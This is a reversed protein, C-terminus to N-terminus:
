RATFDPRQNADEEDVQYIDFGIGAGLDTIGKLYQAEILPGTGAYLYTSKWVVDVYSEASSAIALIAARHPLLLNLLAKLHENIDKRADGAIQLIPSSDLRWWGECQHGLLRGNPARREDGKRGSSYPELGLENTVSVPDLDPGSLIFAVNVKRIHSAHEPSISMIEEHSRQVDSAAPWHSGVHFLFPIGGDLAHAKNPKM